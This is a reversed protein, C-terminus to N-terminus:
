LCLFQLQQALCCLWKSSNINMNTEARSGAIREEKFSSQHKDLRAKPQTLTKCCYFLLSFLLSPSCFGKMHRKMSFYSLWWWLQPLSPSPLIAPSLCGAPLDAKPVVAEPLLLNSIAQGKDCRHCLWSHILIQTWAWHRACPFLEGRSKEM